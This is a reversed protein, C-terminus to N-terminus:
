LSRGVRNGHSVAELIGQPGTVDGVFYVSGQFEHKLARWEEERSGGQPWSSHILRSGMGDKEHMTFSFGTRRSKKARLVVCQFISRKKRLRDLLPPRLLLLMEAVMKDLMEIVTVTRGEGSFYDATECGVLGEGIIVVRKPTIGLEKSEKGEQGCLANV